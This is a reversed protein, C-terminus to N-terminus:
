LPEDDLGHRDRKPTAFDGDEVDDATPLPPPPPTRVEEDATRDATKDDPAKPPEGPKATKAM